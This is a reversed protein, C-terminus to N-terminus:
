IHFDWLTIRRGRNYFMPLIFDVHNRASLHLALGPRVDDRLEVQCLLEAITPDFGYRM